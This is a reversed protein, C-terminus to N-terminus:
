KRILKLFAMHVPLIKNPLKKFFGFKKAQYNLKVKGKIIEVKHVLSVTHFFPNDKQYCDLIGLLKVISIELGVEEKATRRVAEEVSEGLLITSGPFHWYGKMPKIDRFTLLLGKPTDIVLDVCVRPVKSYIKKFEHQPIRKVLKNKTFSTYKVQM